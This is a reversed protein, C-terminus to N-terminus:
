GVTGTKKSVERGINVTIVWLSIFLWFYGYWLVSIFAGTALYAVMAGEYGLSLFYLKRVAGDFEKIGEGAIDLHASKHRRERELGLIFRHDKYTKWLVGAYILCGMIGMESLLTLYLSHAARGWMTHSKRYTYYEPLWIGFNAAGVGIIPHDLFMKWGAKWTEMREKGTGTKGSETRITEIEQWYGKPAIAVAAVVLLGILLGYRLKTKTRVFLHAM